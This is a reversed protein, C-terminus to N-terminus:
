SEIFIIQNPDLSSQKFNQKQEVKCKYKHVRMLIQIFISTNEKKLQINPQSVGIKLTGDLNLITLLAQTQKLIFLCRKKKQITLYFAQIIFLLIQNVWLMQCNKIQFEKNLISNNQNVNQITCQFPFRFVMNGLEILETELDIKLVIQHQSVINIMWTKYLNLFWNSLSNTQIMYSQVLCSYTLM